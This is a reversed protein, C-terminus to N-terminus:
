KGKANLMKSEANLWSKVNKMKIKVNKGFRRM